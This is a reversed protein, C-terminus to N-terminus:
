GCAADADADCDDDNEGPRKLGDDFAAVSTAIMAELSPHQPGDLEIKGPLGRQLVAIRLPINNGAGLQNALWGVCAYERGPMSEHCAMIRGPNEPSCVRLNAHKEPSYDGPIQSPDTSKKWPCKECQKVRAFPHPEAM